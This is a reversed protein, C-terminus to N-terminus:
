LRLCTGASCEFPRVDGDRNLCDDDTTCEVTACEGILTERAARDICAACSRRTSVMTDFDYDDSVVFGAERGAECTVLASPDADCTATRSIDALDVTCSRGASDTYSQIESPEGEECGALALLLALAATAAWRVTSRAVVGRRTMM